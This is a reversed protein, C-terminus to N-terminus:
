IYSLRLDHGIILANKKSFASGRALCNQSVYWPAALHLSVRCCWFCGCRWPVGEQFLQAAHVQEAVILFVRWRLSLPATDALCCAEHSCRLIPHRRADNDPKLNCARASCSERTRFMLTLSTWNSSFHAKTFFFLLVTIRLVRVVLGLAILPVM